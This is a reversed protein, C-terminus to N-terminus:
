PPDDDSLLRAIEDPSLKQEFPLGLMWSAMRYSVQAVYADFQARTLPQDAPLGLKRAVEDCIKEIETHSARQHYDSHMRVFAARAATFDHSSITDLIADPAVLTGDKVCDWISPQEPNSAYAIVSSPPAGVECLDFRWAAANYLRFYGVARGAADSAVVALNFHRGFRAVLADDGALPGLDIHCITQVLADDGHRVFRRAEGYIPKLLEDGGHLDAWLVLCTKLMSRMALPGGLSIERHQTGIRQSVHRVHARALSAKVDAVEMGLARALDPLIRRLQEASTVRLEVSPSGDPLYTITFPRGGEIVPIGGPKLAVRDSGHRLGRIRPPPQGKGSPLNLLNRLFEVSEALERDPDSGMENNCNSCLAQRTTKRGGLAALWVHEPRTGPPLPAACLICQPM